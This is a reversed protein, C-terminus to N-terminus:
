SRTRASAGACRRSSSTSIPSSGTSRWPRGPSGPDFSKGSGRQDWYVVTFVKELASSFHRFFHTESFGPGGHLLILVPNALSEGRIMVWQALGGLHRYGVEAISGGIVEGTPDRFPPTRGARRRRRM